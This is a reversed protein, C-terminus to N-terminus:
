SRVKTLRVTGSDVLAQIRDIAEAIPLLRDTQYTRRMLDFTEQKDRVGGVIQIALYCDACPNDPHAM